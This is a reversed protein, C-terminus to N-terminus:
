LQSLQSLQPNRLNGWHRDTQRGTRGETRRDPGGGGGGAGAVDDDDDDGAAGAANDDNQGHGKAGRKLKTEYKQPQM